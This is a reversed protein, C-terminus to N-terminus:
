RIIEAASKDYKRHSQIKSHGHSRRRPASSEKVLLVKKVIPRTISKITNFIGESQKKNHNLLRRVFEPKELTFLEGNLRLPQGGNVTNYSWIGDSNKSKKIFVNPNRNLVNKQKKYTNEITNSRKFQKKMNGEFLQSTGYDIISVKVVTLPKKQFVVLVNSKHLDGHIKPVKYFSRITDRTHKVLDQMVQKPSNSKQIASDLFDYLTLFGYNSLQTDPVTKLVHDMIYIGYLTPKNSGKEATDKFSPIRMFTDTQTNWIAYCKINVGWSGSGKSMGVTVENEFRQLFAANQLKIVKLVYKHKSGTKRDILQYVTGYKSETAGPLKKRKFIVQKHFNSTRESGNSMIRYTTSSPSNLIVKLKASINM